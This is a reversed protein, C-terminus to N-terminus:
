KKGSIHTLKERLKNGRTKTLLATLKKDIQPLSLNPSLGIIGSTSKHNLLRIFDKVNYTVILREEKQTLKFLERDSIGSKNLDIVIHKVDFRENVMPFSKRHPVNEDLLLKHKYFKKTM